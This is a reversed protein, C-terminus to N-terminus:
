MCDIFANNIKRVLPCGGQISKDKFVLLEILKNNNDSLLRNLNIYDKHAKNGGPFDFIKM